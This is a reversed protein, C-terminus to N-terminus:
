SPVEFVFRRMMLYSVPSLLIVAIGQAILASIQLQILGNLLLLNCGFMFGYAALYRLFGQVNHSGFLSGFSGFNFAVGAIYGLVLAISPTLGALLFVAYAAYGFLTNIASVMLFSGLRKAELLLDRRTM